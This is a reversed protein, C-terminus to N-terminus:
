GKLLSRFAAPNLVELQYGRKVLVDRITSTKSTVRDDCTLFYQANGIAASALHIADRVGLTIGQLDRAMKLVEESQSVGEACYALYAESRERESAEPNWRVELKLIDSGILTVTGNVVEAFIDVFAEAEQRIREQSQDDFPRGYVNTDLYVRV